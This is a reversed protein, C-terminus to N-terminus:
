EREGLIWGYFFVWLLGSLKHKSQQFVSDSLLKVENILSVFGASSSSIEKWASFSPLVNEWSDTFQQFASFLKRPLSFVRAHWSFFFCMTSIPWQAIRVWDLNTQPIWVWGIYQGSLWLLLRWLWCLALRWSSGKTCPLSGSLPLWCRHAARLLLKILSM